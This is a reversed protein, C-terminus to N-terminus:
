KGMAKKRKIVAQAAMCGSAGPLASPSASEVAVSGAMRWISVAAGDLVAAGATCKGVAMVARAVSVDCGEGVVVDNGVNVGEGCGEDVADAVSWGVSSGGVAASNGGAVSDDGDASDGASTFGVDTVGIGM